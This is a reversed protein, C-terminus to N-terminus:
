SYCSLIILAPILAVISICHAIMRVRMREQLHGITSCPSYDSRVNWQAHSFCQREARHPCAPPQSFHYIYSPCSQHALTNNPTDPWCQWGDWTRPCWGPATTTHMHSMSSCCNRAAVCCAAWKDVGQRFSAVVEASPSEPDAEFQ